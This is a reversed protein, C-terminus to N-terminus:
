YQVRVAEGDRAPCVNSSRMSKGKNTLWHFIHRQRENKVGFRLVPSLTEHGNM